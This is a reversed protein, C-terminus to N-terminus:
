NINLFAVTVSFDSQLDIGGSEQALNSGVFLNRKFANDGFTISLEGGRNFGFSRLNLNDPLTDYTSFTINGALGTQLNGLILQRVRQPM